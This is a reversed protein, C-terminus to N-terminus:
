TRKRDNTGAKYSPLEIAFCTGKKSTKELYLKGDNTEVISKSIPLGLGTGTIKSTYFLNFIKQRTSESIGMGTDCIKTIITKKDESASVKIKITGSYPMAQISNLVLNRFVSYLQHFDMFVYLLDEDLIELELNIGEPIEIDKLTEEICDKVSIMKALDAKVRSYSLISELINSTLKIKEELMDLRKEFLVRDNSGEKRLLFVSNHIISLPTRLEHAIQAALKGLVALKHKEVMNESMIQIQRTKAKVTANLSFVWLIVLIITISGMVAALIVIAQKWPFPELVNLGFWKRQLRLLMGNEKLSEIGLNLDKLLKVNNEKVAMCYEYISGVSAGIYKLGRIKNTQIYFLAVNKEAIIATVEKNKLMKLAELVTKTKIVQIKGNKILEPFVHSEKHVAVLTGELSNISNVYTNDSNVFIAFEIESVPQTYNIFDPHEPKAPLGIIGDINGEELSKICDDGPLLKIQINKGYFSYVKSSLIKILDVSFGAPMNKENYYSYPAFSEDGAFILTNDTRKTGPYKFGYSSLAVFLLFLIIICLYRKRM